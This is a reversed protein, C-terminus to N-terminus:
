RAWGGDALAVDVLFEFGGQGPRRRGRADLRMVAGPAVVFLGGDRTAAARELGAHALAVEGVQVRGHPGLLWALPRELDVLWVREAGPVPALRVNRAGLPVERLTRLEDDLRLVRRERPAAANTTLVWWGGEPAPAVDEVTGGGWRRRVAGARPRELDFLVLWGRDTGVLVRGGAGATCRAQAPYALVEDAGDARVRRLRARGTGDRDVVLADGGDLTALDLFTGLEAAARLCGARDLRGLRHPTLPHGAPASVVWLGGDARPELDVPFRIPVRLAVFARADLGVVQHGDRDAVWVAVPGPETRVAVQRLTLGRTLALGAGLV